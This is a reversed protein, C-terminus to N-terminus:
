LFISVLGVGWFGMDLVYIFMYNVFINVIVGIYLFVVVIWFWEVVDFFLKLGFFLIFLIMWFVM